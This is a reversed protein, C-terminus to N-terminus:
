LRARSAAWSRELEEYSIGLAGQIADTLGMGGKLNDLINRVSFFGFERIIYEAASLSLIYATQAEHPGLGMFSGELPKLRLKGSSALGSFIRAYPASSQGEEYQAVGENLWVPARGGSLERVVAHTYEHYVVKELASTKETLGGAPIKIRGDYIAGAWSPSRTIDTFAEKSYLLAEIREEPYFGFDQGVKLYAEELLLGILHGAVANEGGEFKVLFHGGERREMGAEFSNEEEIRALADSLKGDSPDLRSAKGLFVAADDTKGAELSERGLLSYIAKLREPAGPVGAIHELTLAAGRLDGSRYQADALMSIIVPEQSLTSADKFSAVASAFAGSAMEKKGKEALVRALLKNLASSPGDAAIAQRLLREAGELDGANAAEYAEMAPGGADQVQVKSLPELADVAAPEAAVPRVQAGKDQAAKDRSCSFLIPLLFLPIFLAPLARGPLLRSIRYPM